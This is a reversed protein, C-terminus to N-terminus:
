GVDIEHEGSYVVANPPIKLNDCVKKACGQEINLNLSEVCSVGSINSITQYVESKLVDRGFPWGNKGSGGYIPNLFQTLATKIDSKVRSPDSKPKINVKTKVSVQVYEPPIVFLNTTLLRSKKLHNYVMCRFNVSAIPKKIGSDPLTYPIIVVTVAGPYKVYPFCPNYLPLAKARAVRVAPTALALREYDESTVARYRVKLDKKAQAIVQELSEAEKGGVAPAKNIVKVQRFKSSLIQNISNAKVNGIEGGGSRYTSVRINNKGKPPIAGHVGDGFIIEGKAHNITYHKDKSTSADFDTIETWEFWKGNSEKVEIVQSGPVVPVHDLTFLQHPLGNSSGLILAPDLSLIRLRINENGAAPIRGHIGNGFIIENTVMNLIYHLDDPTSAAFSGVEIWQQWKGDSGQVEVVRVGAVNPVRNISYVQNAAGSSSGLIISLDNSWTQGHTASVTNILLSDIRPPIEYEPDMIRCRIWYLDEEMTDLKMKVADKPGKFTVVGSKALAYTKDEVIELQEWKEGDWYEWTLKASPLIEINSDFQVPKEPLDQEYLNIRINTDVNPFIGEYDFGLYLGNEQEPKNGFAYYYLGDFDNADFNSTFGTSDFTFIEKLTIPSIWVHNDIEFVIDIVDLAAVQTGKEILIPPKDPSISFSTQVTAQKAAQPQRGVLKLFKLINRDTVRNLNYIQMEALWAFLELFTIGPDHLNHDTWEPAYLPLLSRTEEILQKFTKDDLSPISLPM